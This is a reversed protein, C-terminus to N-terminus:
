PNYWWPNKHLELKGSFLVVEDESLPIGPMIVSEGSGIDFHSVNKPKLGYIMRIFSVASISGNYKTDGEHQEGFVSAKEFTVTNNDIKIHKFDYYDAIYFFCDSFETHLSIKHRKVFGQGAEAEGISLSSREGLDVSVYDCENWISLLESEYDTLFEETIDEKNFDTWRDARLIYGKHGNADKTEEFDGFYKSQETVSATESSEATGNEFSGEENNAVCASVCLLVLLLLLCSIIKKKM